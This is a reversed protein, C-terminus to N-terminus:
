GQVRLAEHRPLRTQVEGIKRVELEKLLRRQQIWLGACELHRLKGLGQGNCTGIAASSGLWLRVPLGICIDGYM